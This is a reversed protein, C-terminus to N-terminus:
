GIAMQWSQGLDTSVWLQNATETNVVGSMIGPAVEIQGLGAPVTPLKTWTGGIDHSVYLVFENGDSVQAIVTTADVATLQLLSAGGSAPVGVGTPMPVPVFTDGGDTSASVVLQPTPDGGWIGTQSYVYLPGGDPAATFAIDGGRGSGPTTWASDAADGIIRAVQGGRDNYSLYSRDGQAAISITPENGGAGKLFSLGTEVFGDHDIPSRQLIFTPSGSADPGANTLAYAWRGSVAVSSPSTDGAGLSTWTGGGDHTSWWGNGVAWGNTVDAMTVAFTDASPLTEPTWNAGDATTWLSAPQGDAPSTVAWGHTADLFHAESLQGTPLTPPVAPTTAETTPASTTVTTTVPATVTTDASSATTVVTPGTLSTPDTAPEDRHQVLRTLGYLGGGALAVSAAIALWRRPDGGRQSGLNGGRVAIPGTGDSRVDALVQESQAGRAAEAHLRNRLIRLNDDLEADPEYTM